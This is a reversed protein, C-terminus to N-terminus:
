ETVKRQYTVNNREKIFKDINEQNFKSLGDDIIHIKIRGNKGKLFYTENYLMQMMDAIGENDGSLSVTISIDNVSRSDYVLYKMVGDIIFALGITAFLSLFILIVTNM